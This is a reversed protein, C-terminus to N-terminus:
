EDRERAKKGAYIAVFTGVIAAFIPIFIAILKNTALLLM